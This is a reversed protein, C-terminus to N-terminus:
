QHDNAGPIDEISINGGVFLDKWANYSDGGIYNPKVGCDGFSKCFAKEQNVWDEKLDVVGLAKGGGGYDADAFSESSACDKFCNNQCTSTFVKWADECSEICDSFCNGEVSEWDVGLASRYGGLSLTSAFGCVQSPSLSPSVGM